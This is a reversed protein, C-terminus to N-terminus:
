SEKLVAITDLAIMLEENTNIVIAKRSGETTILGAKGGVAKANAEKDTIFGFIALRELTKERVKFSNEGIGGTFVIADVRPLSVSLAAIYKALRFVFVEIALNAGAHGNDAAEQLARMDASLGGSLGLLGSKKNLLNEVDVVNLRMASAIYAHLGPDIDGSRTGMVLGELPTFGMSTDVSKGNLVASASAGNGLHATIFASDDLPIQLFRAAERSVYRHSTGHFGYRRVGYQTYLEEPLAYRFAHVPLTQHFATDFVGVQPLSPMAAMAAKIGELNAPNHLPAFPVCKEIAAIVNDDILTSAKFYEGGHVVRHGVASITSLLNQSELFQFIAQMATQHNGGPLDRTKKVGELNTHLCSGEIGLREALGSCVVANNEMSILSFKISSSGSNIVLVRNNM